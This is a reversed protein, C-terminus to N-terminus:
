LAKSTMSHIHGVKPEQNLQLALFHHRPEAFVGERVVVEVDVDGMAV